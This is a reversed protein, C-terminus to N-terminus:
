IGDLYSAAMPLRWEVGGTRMIGAVEYTMSGKRFPELFRHPMPLHFRVVEPSRRYTIMRRTGGAGATDLTRLGRITLQQGTQATYINNKVLYDLITGDAGPTRPTIALYQWAASPMLVTDAIETEQTTSYIGSLGANFDRLIQDPTKSAWTTLGGSGDAAVFAVPVLPDNLLGTWGKEGGGTMALGFLFRQAILRASRAKEDGINRGEMAAVSIEELNWEYGIGAMQFQKLGQSRLVDAYPMDFAAANLFEAKGIGEDASFFVTGRSWESGETIVPVLAAYDFSPYKITYITQEINYYQPIVFGLAAQADLLQINM